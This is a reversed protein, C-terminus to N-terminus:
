RSGVHVHGREVVRMETRLPGLDKGGDNRTFDAFRHGLQGAPQSSRSSSSGMQTQPQRQIDGLTQQDQQQRHMFEGYIVSALSSAARLSQRDIHGRGRRREAGEPFSALSRRRARPRVRDENFRDWGCRYMGVFLHAALDQTM